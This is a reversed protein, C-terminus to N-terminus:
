FIEAPIGDFLNNFRSRCDQQMEKIQNENPNNPLEPMFNEVLIQVESKRMQGFMLRNNGDIGNIWYGVSRLSNHLDTIISLGEPGFDKNLAKSPWEGKGSAATAIIKTHRLLMEYDDRSLLNEPPPAEFMPPTKFKRM